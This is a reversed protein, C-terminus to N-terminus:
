ASTTSRRIRAGPAADPSRSRSSARCTTSSPTASSAPSQAGSALPSADFFEDADVGAVPCGTINRTVDGCSGMTTLGARWLQRSSRSPRRHTGLPASHEPSGHHRRSRSRLTRHADAITRLRTARLLGNPIRIRVMFYPVAKGEGGLRGRRGRRRGAHVRGLLPLVHRAMRAPHVRIRTACVRSNRRSAGVSEKRAESTRGEAGQNGKEAPESMKAGFVFFGCAM